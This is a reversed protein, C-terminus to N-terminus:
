ISAAVSFDILGFHSSIAGSTVGYPNSIGALLGGLFLAPKHPQIPLHWSEFTRTPTHRQSKDPFPHLVYSKAAERYGTKIDM